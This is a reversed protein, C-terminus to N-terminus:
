QTKLPKADMAMLEEIMELRSHASKEIACKISVACFKACITDAMNYKGFCDVYEELPKRFFTKENM